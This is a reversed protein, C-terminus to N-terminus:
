ILTLVVIIFRVIEKKTRCFLTQETIWSCSFLLLIIEMRPFNCINGVEAAAALPQYGADVNAGKELLYKCVKIKGKLAALCLPTQSQTSTMADIDLGCDEILYQCFDFQGVQSAQHLATSKNKLRSVSPNAGKGVLLRCLKLQGYSACMLFVTTGFENEFNVDVGNDILFEILKATSNTSDDVLCTARFLLLSHPHPYDVPGLKHIDAGFLIFLKLMKVSNVSFLLYDIAEQTIETTKFIMMMKSINNNEVANLAQRNEGFMRLRTKQYKDEAEQDTNYASM